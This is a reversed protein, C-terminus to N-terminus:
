PRRTLTWLTVSHAPLPRAALEAISGSCEEIWIGDPDQWPEGATWSSSVLRAEEADWKGQLGLLNLDIPAERDHRFNIVAVRIVDGDRVASVSIAPVHSAFPPGDVTVPLARGAFNGGHHSYLRFAHYIPNLAIGDPRVVVPAMVNYLLTLNAMQLREGMRHMSHFVASVWLADRITPRPASLNWEDLTLIPPSADEPTGEVVVRDAARLLAEMVGLQQLASLYRTEESDIPEVRQYAHISYWEMEHHLLPVVRQNWDSWMLREDERVGVGVLELPIPSAARMARAVEVAKIAYREPSLHGMQWDGWMENGLGWVRVNHPESLPRLSGNVTDAPGNCYEVWAVALDAGHSGLNACLYPEAGTERCLTLFEETGFDNPEIENWSHNWRAPRRDPDGIGDRWDYESAFNGGPWRIIPPAIAKTAELADRRLGHVNDAPMLSAAGVWLEGAEDTLIALAGEATDVDSRLVFPTTAWDDGAFATATAVAREGAMLAIVCERPPNARLVVRGSYERGSQLALGAQAIGQASEGTTEIRQSQAPSYYTRTDPAYRAGIGAAIWGEIVGADDASGYFKRNGLMEAWIGGNICGNLPEIFHGHIWPNVPDGPADVRVTIRTPELTSVAEALPACSLSDIDVVVRTEDGWTRCVIGVLPCAFPFVAQGVERWEMGERVFATFTDGRKELALAVPGEPMSAKALGGAGMQELWLDPGHASGQLSPSFFPGWGVFTSPNPFGSLAIQYNSTGSYEIVELVCEVRWDAAPAERVLAPADAASPWLGYGVPSPPISLRAHGSRAALDLEPGAKPVVWNWSGGLTPESFDEEWGGNSQALLTAAILLSTM